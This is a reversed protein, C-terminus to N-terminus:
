SDKEENQDVIQNQELRKEVPLNFYSVANDFSHKFTSQGAESLRIINFRKSFEEPGMTLVYKSICNNFFQTTFFKVKDFDIVIEASPNSKIIEDIREYMKQADDISFGTEIIEKAIITEM